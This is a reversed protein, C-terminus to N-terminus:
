CKNDVKAQNKRQKDNQTEWDKEFAKSKLDRSLLKRKSTGTSRKSSQWKEPCITYKAWYVLGLIKECKIFAQLILGSCLKM